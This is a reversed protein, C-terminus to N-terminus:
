SIFGNTGLKMGMCFLLYCLLKQIKIKVNKPVLRSSRLNQVLTGLTGRISDDKLKNM